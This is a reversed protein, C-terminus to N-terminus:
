FGQAISCLECPTSKQGGLNLNASKIYSLHLRSSSIGMPDKGTVSM